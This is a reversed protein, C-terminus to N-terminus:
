LSVHKLSKQAIFWLSAALFFTVIAFVLLVLGLTQGFIGYVLYVQLQKWLWFAFLSILGLCLVTASLGPLSTSASDANKQSFDPWIAGFTLAISGSLIGVLVSFILTAIYTEFDFGLIVTSINVLIGATLIMMPIFFLLKAWLLTTLKIPLSWIVWASKGELSMTPFVFRIAIVALIYGIFTLNAIVLTATLTTSLNEFTPVRGLALFYILTLFILFGIYALQGRDRWFMLLEKKFIATLLNPEFTSARERRITQGLAGAIFSGEFSKQLGELYLKKVLLNLVVFLILPVSWLLVLNVLIEWSQGFIWGKIAKIYWTSPLFPSFTPLKDLAEFRTPLDAQAFLESLNRPVLLKAFTFSVTPIVFLLTIVTVKFTFRGLFKGAAMIIISSLISFLLVLSFLATTFVLYFGFGVGSAIGFALLVPIGLVLVPWASPITTLIFRAHFLVQSSIPLSTLFLNKQGKYIVQSFYLLNSVLFTGTLLIFALALTYFSLVGVAEEERILFGFGAKTFLFIAFSIAALLILFAVFVLLRM